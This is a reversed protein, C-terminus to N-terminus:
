FSLITNKVQSDAPCFNTGWKLPKFFIALKDHGDVNRKHQEQTYKPM